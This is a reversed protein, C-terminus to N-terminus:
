SEFSVTGLIKDTVEKSSSVVSILFTVASQESPLPYMSLVQEYRSGDFYEWTKPVEFGGIVYSPHTWDRDPLGMGAKTVSLTNDGNELAVSILEGLKEPHYQVNVDDETRRIERLVWEKPYALAVGWDENVYAEWGDPVHAPALSTEETAENEISEVSNGSQSKSSHFSMWLYVGGVLVIAFGLIILVKKTTITFM